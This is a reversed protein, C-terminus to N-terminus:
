ALTSQKNKVETSRTQRAENEETREPQRTTTHSANARQFQACLEDNEKRPAEIENTHRKWIEHRSCGAKTDRGVGAHHNPSGLVRKHSWQPDVYSWPQTHSQDDIGWALHEQWSNRLLLGPLSKEFLPRSGTGAGHQRTFPDEM